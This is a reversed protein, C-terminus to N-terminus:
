PRNFWATGALNPDSGFRQSSPRGAREFASRSDFFVSLSLRTDVGLAVWADRLPDGPAGPVEVIEVLDSTYHTVTGDVLALWVSGDDQDVAISWGTNDFAGLIPLKIFPGPNGYEDYKCFTTGYTTWVSDDGRFVRVSTPMVGTGPKSLSPGVVDFTGAPGIKLLRSLSSPIGPHQEGRGM